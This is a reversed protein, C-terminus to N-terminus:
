TMEEILVDAHCLEGPKCYCCLVTAERLSALYDERETPSMDALYQRFMGVAQQRGYEKVVFPNGWRTGRAVVIAGEPKRWGRQRRLQIRDM